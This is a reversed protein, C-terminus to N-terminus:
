KLEPRKQGILPVQPHASKPIPTLGRNIFAYLGGRGAVLIDLKGDRNIDQAVIKM